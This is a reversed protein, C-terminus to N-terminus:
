NLHADTSLPSALLLWFPGGHNRVKGFEVRALLMETDRARVRFQLQEQAVQRGHTGGAPIPTGHEVHVAGGERRRERDRMAEVANRPSVGQVLRAEVDPREIEVAEAMGVTVLRHRLAGLKVSRQAVALIGGTLDLSRGAEDEIMLANRAERQDRMRPARHRGTAERCLMRRQDVAPHQEPRDRATRGAVGFRHRGGGGPPDDGDLILPLTEDLVHRGALRRDQRAAMEVPPAFGIEVAVRGAPRPVRRADLDGGAWDAVDLTGP